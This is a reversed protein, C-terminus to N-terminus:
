RKRKLRARMKEVEAKAETEPTSRRHALSLATPAEVEQTPADPAGYADIESTPILRSDKCTKVVGDRILGNLKSVSIGLM